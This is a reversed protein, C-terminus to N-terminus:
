AVANRKFGAQPASAAGLNKCGAIVWMIAQAVADGQSLAALADAREGETLPLQAIRAYIDTKEFMAERTKM